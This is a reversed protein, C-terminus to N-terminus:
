AIEQLLESVSKCTGPIILHPAIEALPELVFKRRSMQPHPITLRPTNIKMTDYILIDIDIIRDHYISKVSGDPMQQSSSKLTRGMEREIAQSADLLGIPSLKTSICICANLFNNESEFGWPATSIFSSQSTIAGIRTIIKEIAVLLNQEKDGINTGLSLYATHAM